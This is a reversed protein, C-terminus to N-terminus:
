YAIAPSSIKELESLYQPHNDQMSEMSCIKIAQDLRATTPHDVDGDYGQAAFDVFLRVWHGCHWGLKHWYEMGKRDAALEASRSYPRFKVRDPLGLDRSTIRNALGRSPESGDEQTGADGGLVDHAIEHALTHRLLWRYNHNKYALRSLEYSIFIKQGGISLGLIDRRAFDALKFQYKAWRERHESVAVIELGIAAVYRELKEDAVTPLGVAIPACSYTLWILSFVALRLPNALSVFLDWAQRITQYGVM